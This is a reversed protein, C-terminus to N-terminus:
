GEADLVTVKEIGEAYPIFANAAIEEELDRRTRGRDGVLWASLIVLRKL